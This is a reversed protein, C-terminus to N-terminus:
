GPLAESPWHTARRDAREGRAKCTRTPGSWPGPRRGPDAGLCLLEARAPRFACAPRTTPDEHVVCGSPKKSTVSKFHGEFGIHAYDYGIQTDRWSVDPRPKPDCYVLTIELAFKFRRM